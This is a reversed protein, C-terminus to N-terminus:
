MGFAAQNRVLGEVAIGAIATSVIIKLGVNCFYSIFISFSFGVWRGKPTRSYFLQGLLTGIIASLIMVSADISMGVLLGAVAGFLMFLSGRRVDPRDERPLLAAIGLALVAALCYAHLIRLVEGRKGLRGIDDLRRDGIYGIRRGYVQM